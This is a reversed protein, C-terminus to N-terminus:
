LKTVNHIIELKSKLKANESELGGLKKELRDVDESRDTVRNRWVSNGEKSRNLQFRLSSIEIRNDHLEDRSERGEKSWVEYLRNLKLQLNYKQHRCHGLENELEKKTM